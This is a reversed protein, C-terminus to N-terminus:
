LIRRDKKLTKLRIILEEDIRKGQYTKLEKYFSFSTIDEIKKNNPINLILKAEVGAGSLTAIIQKPEGELVMFDDGDGYEQIVLLRDFPYKPLAMQILYMDGAEGRHRYDIIINNMNYYWSKQKILYPNRENM